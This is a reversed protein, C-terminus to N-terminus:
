KRGRNDINNQPPLENQWLSDFYYLDEVEAYTDDYIWKAKDYLNKYFSDTFQAPDNSVTTFQDDFFEHFQPSIHMTYPNYIIPVNGAHSLSHGVYIGLWSRSKWKGLSDSDQLKKDLVFVPCGFVRFDKMHWPTANGAFLIHPSLHSDSTISANHFTCAHRLAFPWFEETV